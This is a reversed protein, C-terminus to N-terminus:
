EKTGEELIASLATVAEKADDGIASIKIQAGTAAGLSLVSMISKANAKKDNYEVNIDTDKYKIATKVFDSAPRAHLGGDALIIIEKEYM